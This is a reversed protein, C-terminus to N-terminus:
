PSERLVVALVNNWPVFSKGAIQYELEQLTEEGKQATAIRLAVGRDNAEILEGYFPPFGGTPFVIVWQGEWEEPITM